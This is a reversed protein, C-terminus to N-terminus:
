QYLPYTDFGVLRCEPQLILSFQDYVREQMQRALQIIDNSSANDINIIMNAHQPSVQAGGIRLHGKVGVKDLYYAVWIAKQNNYTLSVEHHHFNRFFSGCTNATPYRAVRHRIIEVRRGRAYATELDTAPTVRFTANVLYHDEKHLTSQNYGFNFWTKDITIIQGTQKHIVQAELLFQEILFSFYHLNIYIAGGITGPIGSFEELGLLNNDLCYEILTNISVGAGARIIDPAIMEISNLQPKIVLGNFGQDSILVNAGHGLVFIPLSQQHAFALAEQLEVPNSPQTFFRAPGGTRFWNKNALCIYSEICSVVKGQKILM